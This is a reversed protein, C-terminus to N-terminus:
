DRALTVNLFLPYSSSPSDALMPLSLTGTDPLLMKGADSVLSSWNRCYDRFCSPFGPALSSVQLPLEDHLLRSGHGLEEDRVRPASAQLVHPDFEKESNQSQVTGSRHANAENGGARAPSGVFLLLSVLVLFRFCRVRPCQMKIEASKLGEM